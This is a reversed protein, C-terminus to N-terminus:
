WFIRLNVLLINHKVMRQYRTQRKCGSKSLGELMFKYGNAIQNFAKKPDFRDFRGDIDVRMLSNGLDAEPCEEWMGIVQQHKNEFNAQFRGAVQYAGKSLGSPDGGNEKFYLNLLLPTVKM